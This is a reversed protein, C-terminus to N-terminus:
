RVLTSACRLRLDLTSEYVKAEDGRKGGISISGRM